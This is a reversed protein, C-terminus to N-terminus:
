RSVQVSVIGPQKKLETLQAADIADVEILLLRTRDASLDFRAAAEGPIAPAVGDYHIAALESDRGRGTRRMVEPLVQQPLALDRRFRGDQEASPITRGALGAFQPWDVDDSLLAMAALGNLDRQVVRRDQEDLRWRLYLAVSDWRGAEVAAAVEPPFAKLWTRETQRRYSAFHPAYPQWHDYPPETEWQVALDHLVQLSIAEALTEAVAHTRRPDLVVHGLEHALQYVFQAYRRDTANLYIRYERPDSPDCQPPEAARYSIRIPREGAPPETPLHRRVQRWVDEAVAQFDGRQGVPYTDDVRIAAPEASGASSAAALLLLVTALRLVRPGRGLPQHCTVLTSHCTPHLM